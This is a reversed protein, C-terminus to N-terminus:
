FMAGMSFDWVNTKEGRHSIPMLNYGWDIRIPGFPSYWRFGVGVANRLPTINDWDDFGKGIDYFVAVKLGITKSLPYTLETTFAVMNLAGIPELKSDLPGAMGYEFGRLTKAGGGVFFKSPLPVESNNYGRIIGINGRLNVVLDGIISHYWSAGGAATYFYNDGGLGAVTGAVWITSGKTPNYVNNITDRTVTVTVKSTTTWGRLKEKYIYDNPGYSYDIDYIRVREFLYDLDTRITDTIEMGFNITGGIVDADYTNYEYTRNYASLGVSLPTDLFRPDTFGVEYTMVEEGLEGKLYAKYGRGFLNGHSVGVAGVVGYENSYGAGFELRGMQQEEVRIDLDILEKKETPSPAFDVEKFYQTRAVRQRSKRIRTSSYRDGEGIKLERRIVKDRTMTNGAIEIRNIFVEIGKEIKFNLHVLRNESDLMTMPSVDVYAYGQDAYQDSLWLLDKQVLSANYVKEVRSKVGKLLDEKTTLIDGTIDLSGLRYQEGEEIRITIQISKKNESLTIEPDDVKVTVYGYNYYLSRIRSVDVELVDTELRGSKTLWWTWGKEKTQMVSKLKRAGLVTNGIFIIKTLYGKVGEVIDFYVVARNGKEVEVWHNVESGFYRKSTYLKKIQTVSSQVKDMELVTDRKVEIVDEIEEQDLKVNGSIVINVVFPKEIVAFTLIIEGETESVDVQVDRFYGLRYVAKVDERVREQSFDEGAKSGIEKLIVEKDVRENGFVIIEKIVGEQAFGSCVSTALFIALFLGVISLVRM